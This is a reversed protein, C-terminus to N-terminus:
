RFFKRYSTRKHKPQRKEYNEGTHKPLINDFANLEQETFHLENLFIHRLQSSALYCTFHLRAKPDTELEYLIEPDTSQEFLELEQITDDTFKTLFVSITEKDYFFNKELISCTVQLIAKLIAPDLYSM